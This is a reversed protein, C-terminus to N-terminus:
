RLYPLCSRRIARRSPLAAGGFDFLSRVACSIRYGFSEYPSRGRKSGWAWGAFEWFKSRCERCRFPPIGIRNLVRERRNRRQSLRFKTSKCYPCAVIPNETPSHATLRVSEATRKRRVRVVISFENYPRANTPLLNHVM